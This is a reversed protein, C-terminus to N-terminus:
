IFKNKYMFERIHPPLSAPFNSVQTAKKSIWNNNAFISKGFDQTGNKSKQLITAALNGLTFNTKVLEKTKPDANTPLKIISEELAVAHGNKYFNPSFVWGEGAPPPEIVEEM